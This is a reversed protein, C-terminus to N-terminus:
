QIVFELRRNQKRNEKSSNQALPQTEGKSDVSIRETAIGKEILYEKGTEARKLGKKININKYGIECTHGVILIKVDSYKNLMVAIDNLISKQAESLATEDFSYGDIKTEAIKQIASKREEAAKREAEQRQLEAQRKAEQEAFLTENNAIVENQKEQFSQWYQSEWESRTIGQSQQEESYSSYKNEVFQRHKEPNYTLNGREDVDYAAYFDPNEEMDRDLKKLRKAVVIKDSTYNTAWMLVALQTTKDGKSDVFAQTANLNDIILQRTPNRPDNINKDNDEFYNSITVASKNFGGSANNWADARQLSKGYVEKKEEAAMAEPNIDWGTQEKIRQYSERKEAEYRDANTRTNSHQQNKIADYIQFGGKIIDGM